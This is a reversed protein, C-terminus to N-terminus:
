QGSFTVVAARSGMDSGFQLVARPGPAYDRVAAMYMLVVCALSSTAGTVGISEAPHWLEFEEKRLRLLRTHAFSAEKFYFQEGTLDSIRYDIDQLGWGAEALAGKVAQTLGDGRLPEGSYIHAPELGFGIGNCWVQRGDNAEAVLVAGAGEGPMFGDSNDKTLLRLQQDYQSLPPWSLLSDTAVILVLPAARERILRRARDLAIGVAVRGQPIILSASSFQAGLEAQIEGFLEEDLGAIRGPREREAVCLLLPIAPWDSCPIEALCERIAMVAMKALKTLGRWPQSLAVQHGMIWGGASDRFRTETPNTLKARIAACSAPASLGVSSVLGVGTIALPASM